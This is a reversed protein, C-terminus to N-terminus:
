GVAGGAHGPARRGGAAGLLTRTPAPRRDLNLVGIVLVPLPWFVPQVVIPVGTFRFIVPGSSLLGTTENQTKMINVKSLLYPYVKGV